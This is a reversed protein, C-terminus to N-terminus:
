PLQCDQGAPLINQGGAPTANIGLASEHIEHIAAYESVWNLKNQDNKVIDGFQETLLKSWTEQGNTNTIM